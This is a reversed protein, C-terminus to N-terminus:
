LQISQVATYASNGAQNFARVRFWYKMGVPANLITGGYSGDAVGAETFTSGDFSVEIKYGQVVGPSAAPNWRVMIPKTIDLRGSTTTVPDESKLQCATTLFAAILIILKNM